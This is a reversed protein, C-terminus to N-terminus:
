LHSQQYAFEKVYTNLVLIQFAKCASNLVKTIAAQLSAMRDM